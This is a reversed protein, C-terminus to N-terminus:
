AKKISYTMVGDEYFSKVSKPDLHAGTDLKSTMTEVKNIRSELDGEKRVDVYRRNFNLLIDKQNFTLHLDAKAHPPVQVQVEISDGLDKMVPSLETFSYFPDEKRENYIELKKSIEEKSKNIVKKNVTELNQFNNEHRSRQTSYKKEFFNEKKDIDRRFAEDRLTQDTEHQRTLKEMENLHIKHKELRQRENTRLQLNKAKEFANHDREFNTTFHEKQQQIKNDYDAENMSYLSVQEHKRSALQDQGEAAVRKTLTNYRHHIDEVHIENDSVLRERELASKTELKTKEEALSGQLEHIQKDVITKTNQLNNQTEQLIKSKRTEAEGIESQHERRLDTVDADQSKKIENKVTEHTNRIFKLEKEQQRRTADIQKMQAKSLDSISSM